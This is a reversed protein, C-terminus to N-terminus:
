VWPSEIQEFARDGGVAEGLGLRTCAGHLVEWLLVSRKAEVMTGVLGTCGPKPEQSDLDLLGQGQRGAIKQRGAELM